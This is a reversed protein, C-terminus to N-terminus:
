RFFIRKKKKKQIVSLKLTLLAVAKNSDSVIQPIKRPKSVNEWSITMVGSESATIKGAVIKLQM